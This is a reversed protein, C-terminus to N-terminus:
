QQAKQVDRKAELIEKLMDRYIPRPEQGQRWNRVASASAKVTTAIEEIRMGYDSILVDVVTRHKKKM